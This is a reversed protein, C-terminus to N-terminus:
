LFHHGPDAWAGLFSSAGRFTMPSHQIAQFIGRRTLSPHALARIYHSHPRQGFFWLFFHGFVALAREFRSSTKKKKKQIKSHKIALTLTHQARINMCLPTPIKCSFVIM